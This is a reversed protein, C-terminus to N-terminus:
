QWAALMGLRLGMALGRRFSIQQEFNTAESCNVEITEFLALDSPSLHEKLEQASKDWYKVSNQYDKEEEKLLYKSGDGDFDCHFLSYLLSMM